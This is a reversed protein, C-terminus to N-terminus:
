ELSSVGEMDMVFTAILSNLDKLSKIRLEKSYSGSILKQSNNSSLSINLDITTLGSVKQSLSLSNAVEQEFSSIPYTVHTKPQYQLFFESLPHSM